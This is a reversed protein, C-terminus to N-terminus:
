PVLDREREREGREGAREEDAVRARARLREAQAAVDADAAAGLADDHDRGAEHERRPADQRPRDVQEGRRRPDGHELADQVDARLEVSLVGWIAEAFPLAGPSGELTRTAIM